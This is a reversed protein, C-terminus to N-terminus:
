RSAQISISSRSRSRKRKAAACATGSGRPAPARAPEVDESTIGNLTETVEVLEEDNLIGATHLRQAHLLTGACDYPLLALDDARLFNWVESALEGGVRGAWLTM